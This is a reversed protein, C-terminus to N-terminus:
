VPLKLLVAFIAVNCLSVKREAPPKRKPVESSQYICRGAIELRTVHFKVFLDRASEGQQCVAKVVSVPIFWTVVFSGPRIRNVMMACQELRYVQCYRIRFREIEELTVTESWNFRVVMERFGPPLAEQSLFPLIQAECFMKLSTTRRFGELDRKYAAMDQSITRFAEYQMTLVEVLQYLLDCALYNWYFNLKGFLLWHSTCQGLVELNEELFVKHKDLARISTLWFVMSAVTIQCAILCKITAVKITNFRGGFENM